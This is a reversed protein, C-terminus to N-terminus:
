GGPHVPSILGEWAEVALSFGGIPTIAAESRSAGAERRLTVPRGVFMERFLDVHPDIGLFAECVMVFGAIHLM